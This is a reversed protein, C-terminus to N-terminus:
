SKRHRGSLLTIAAVGTVYFPYVLQVPLFWNMLNSIGYRSTTNKLLLFDPVSKAIFLFALLPIFICNFFSVALVFLILVSPILSILGLLITPIDKYASIKSLWRKRQNLLAGPSKAPSTSIIAEASELWLIKTGQHKKISHMLFIDDGSPIEPHLNDANAYYTDRTFALNAGNCMTANGMLATGATIGQLALFELEQFRGSFGTGGKIKVPGIILDARTQQYYSAITSIWKEGARCDADTTIILDSSASDIGCRLAQKKGSGNNRIVKINEIHGFGSATRFTDDSSNDDVVIVEYSDSPYDQASIDALLEPLSKEEDRCPIIVSVRVPPLLLPIFPKVRSLSRYIKLLIFVYPIILIATLWQM